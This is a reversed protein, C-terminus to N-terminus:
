EEHFFVSFNAFVKRLTDEFDPVANDKYQDIDNEGIWKICDHSKEARFDECKVSNLVKAVFIIGKKINEQNELEYIAIPIPQNDNRKEDLVM